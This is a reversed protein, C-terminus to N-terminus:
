AAQRAEWAASSSSRTVIMPPSRLLSLRPLSLKLSITLWPLVKFLFAGAANHPARSRRMM